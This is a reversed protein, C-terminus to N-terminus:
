TGHLTVRFLSCGIKTTLDVGAGLMAHKSVKTASSSCSTQDRNYFINWWAKPGVRALSLDYIHRWIDLKQPAKAANTHICLKPENSSRTGNPANVPYRPLHALNIPDERVFRDLGCKRLYVGLIRGNSSCRLPLVYQQAPGDEYGSSVTLLQISTRVGINTIAYDEPVHDSNHEIDHCEGFDAPKVALVGCIVRDNEGYGDKSTNPTQPLQGPLRWAFLSLDLVSKIIEEQLRRFSKQGEGYLLPMNVDFLGLLCYAMDECETTKRNAAWSMRQAVPVQSLSREGRLVTAPIKAFKSIEEAWTQKSGRRKWDMDYFEVQSPAILVQLTWGRKFLECEKLSHPPLHSISRVRTPMNALFAYCIKSIQYWKYMSNIAQSLEASSSKDIYCTDIWVYPINARHALEVTQAIRSCGQKCSIM